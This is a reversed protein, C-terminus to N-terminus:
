AAKKGGIGPFPMQRVIRLGYGELGQIRKPNNTLLNLRRIGLEFLIQAGIGYTRADMSAKRDQRQKPARVRQQSDEAAYKELTRGL